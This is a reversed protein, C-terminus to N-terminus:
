TKKREKQKEKAAQICGTHKTVGKATSVLLFFIRQYILSTNFVSSTCSPMTCVCHTSLPCFLFSPVYFQVEERLLFRVLRCLSNSIVAEM